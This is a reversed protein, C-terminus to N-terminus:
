YHVSRQNLCLVLAAAFAAFRGGVIKGLVYVVPVQLIGFLASPLRLMAESDGLKMWYHILVFYTPNHYAKEADAVLEPLPLRSREFTTAEDLWFSEDGLKYFRTLAAIVLLVGIAVYESEFLPRLPTTIRRVGRALGSFFKM